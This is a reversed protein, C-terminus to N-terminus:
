EARATSQRRRLLATCGSGVIWGPRFVWVDFPTLRLGGCLLAAVDTVFPLAFLIWQAGILQRGTATRLLFLRAGVITVLRRGGAEAALDHRRFEPELVAHEAVHEVALFVFDAFNM